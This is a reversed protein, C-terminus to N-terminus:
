DTSEPRFGTKSDREGNVYDNARETIYVSTYNMLRELELLIKPDKTILDMIQKLRREVPYRLDYKFEPDVVGMGPLNNPKFDDYDYEEPEFEWIPSSVLMALTGASQRAELLKKEFFHRAMRIAQQARESKDDYWFMQNAYHTVVPHAPDIAEHTMPLNRAFRLQDFYESINLNLTQLEVDIIIENGDVEWKEPKEFVNFKPSNNESM